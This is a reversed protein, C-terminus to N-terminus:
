GGYRETRIARPATGADDLLQAVTEVFGNAGCVYATAPAHGWQALAEDLLTRDLRRRYGQPADGRTVTTVYAFAPHAAAIAALEERFALSDWTRASHLLLLPVPAGADAWARVIAVLPVIGSGGGALLLPGPQAQTWVFHGGLPGRVELTDGPQAVDHFWGSVEGDDLLEIALEVEGAGPASAISYSRRAQYGDPATLRVDVHQGATHSALPADLFFSSLRPTRREIRTIVATQWNGTDTM